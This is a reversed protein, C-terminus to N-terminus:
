FNKINKELKEKRKRNMEEFMSELFCSKGKGTTGFVITHKRISDGSFLSKNKIDNLNLFM